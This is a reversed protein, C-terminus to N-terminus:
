NSHEKIYNEIEDLELLEDLTYDACAPFIPQGGACYVGHCDDKNKCFNCELDNDLAYQILDEKSM